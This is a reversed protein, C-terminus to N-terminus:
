QKKKKIIRQGGLDVRVPVGKGQVVSTREIGALGASTHATIPYRLRHVTHHSNLCSVPLSPMPWPSKLSSAASPAHIPSCPIRGVIRSDDNTPAIMPEIQSPM